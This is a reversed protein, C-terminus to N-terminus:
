RNRFANKGSPIFFTKSEQKVTALSNKDENPKCYKRTILSTYIATFKVTSPMGTKFTNGHFGICQVCIRGLGLVSGCM